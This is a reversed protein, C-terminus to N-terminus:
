AKTPLKMALIPQAATSKTGLLLLLLLVAGAAM